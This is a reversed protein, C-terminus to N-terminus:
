GVIQPGGHSTILLKGPATLFVRLRRAVTQEYVSNETARRQQVRLLVRMNVINSVAVNKGRQSNAQRVRIEPTVKLDKLFKEQDFHSRVWM